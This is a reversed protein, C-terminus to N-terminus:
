AALALRGGRGQLATVKEVLSREEEAKLIYGCQLCGIYSGYSDSELLLDGGCRPCAKLVVKAGKRPAQVRGPGKGM